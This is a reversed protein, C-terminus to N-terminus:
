DYKYPTDKDSLWYYFTFGCLLLQGTVLRNRSIYTLSNNLCLLPYRVMLSRLKYLAWSDHTIEILVKWWIIMFWSFKWHSSAYHRFPTWFLSLTLAYVSVPWTYCQICYCFINDLCVCLLSLNHNVESTWPSPFIWMDLTRDTSLM